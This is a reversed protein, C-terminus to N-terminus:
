SRREVYEEEIYWVQGDFFVPVLSLHPRTAEEADMVAAMSPDDSTRYEGSCAPLDRGAVPSGPHIELIRKSIHVLVGVRYVPHEYPYVHFSKDM